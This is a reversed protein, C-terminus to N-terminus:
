DDGGDGSGPVNGGPNIGTQLMNHEVTIKIVDVEPADYISKSETNM